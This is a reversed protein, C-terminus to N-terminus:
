HATKSSDLRLREIERLVRECFRERAVPKLERFVKWDAETIGRSETM